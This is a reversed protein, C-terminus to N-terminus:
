RPSIRLSRLLTKDYPTPAWGLSNTFALLDDFERCARCRRDFRISATCGAREHKRREILLVKM